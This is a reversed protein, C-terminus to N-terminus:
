AQPYRYIVLVKKTKPQKYKWNDSFIDQMQSVYKEEHSLICSEDFFNYEKLKLADCYLLNIKKPTAIDAFCFIDDLHTKKVENVYFSGEFVEINQDINQLYKVLEKVKM